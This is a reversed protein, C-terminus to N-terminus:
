NDKYELAAIIQEVHSLTIEEGSTHRFSTINLIQMAQKKAIAGSLPEAYQDHCGYVATKTGCKNVIKGKHGNIEPLESQKIIEAWKGEDYIAVGDSELMQEDADYKFIGNCIGHKKNDYASKYKVGKKFGRREAELTLFKEIQSPTALGKIYDKIVYPGNGEKDSYRESFYYDKGNKIESLKFIFGRSSLLEAYLWDGKKCTEEEYVPEWQQEVIEAPFDVSWKNNQCLGHRRNITGIDGKEAKASPMDMPCKYGIIKKNNEMKVVHKLFQDFTIETYSNPIRRQGLYPYDGHPGDPRSLLYDSKCNYKKGSLATFYKNIAQYNYETRLICWKEPLKWDEEPQIPAAEPKSIIEAFGKELHYVYGEGVDVAKSGLLRPPRGAMYKHGSTVCRYETGVPYKKAIYELIPLVHNSLVAYEAGDYFLGQRGADLSYVSDITFVKEFEWGRGQFNPDDTKHNKHAEPHQVCVVIDGAKYDKM